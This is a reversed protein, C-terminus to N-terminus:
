RVPSLVSSGPLPLVRVSRNFGRGAFAPEPYLTSISVQDDLALTAAETGNVLIPFMTAVAADNALDGDFAEQLGIQSHDLNSYHGFEHIFVGNFEAQTIEGNDVDDFFVHM